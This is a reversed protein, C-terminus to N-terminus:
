FEQWDQGVAVSAGSSTGSFASSVRQNLARAPSATPRSSAVAAAPKAAVPQQTTGGMNFQGLLTTLHAADGSLTHSAATAEEVMAANQQTGQDVTNVATSIEQLGISQERAAEVIASVNRSIDIVEEVIHTLTEGTESVLKVGTRVQEGSTAILAKIEKAASASRQALERVEQAVVAFGKGADGARAAEVGANLALLNTQFAIEDIVGIINTIESSSQEIKHMAAVADEVITGSREAGARTKAVLEGMEHARRAADKVTITIEELAAATQEVSAAQQETRKALEDASARMENAGSAISHATLGISRLTEELKQASANFNGRLGDLEPIFSTEVRYAVDGAALRELGRGLHEVAFRVNAGDKDKQADREIRERESQGQARETEAELKIRAIANDRFVEVATAMHGIEDNRGAGYIDATVNGEALSKMAQTISSLPGVVGRSITVIALIAIAFAVLSLVAMIATSLSRTAESRRLEEKAVAIQLDILKSLVAGIPEIAPYLRTDNFRALGDSDNGDLISILDAIEENATARASLFEQVISKEEDTFYSATYTKWHEDISVLAATIGSKGKDASMAGSRVKHATDVIEVAYQDAVFKLEEMPVIRDAVITKAFMSQKHMAVFALGSVLLITAILLGTCGILKTRITM